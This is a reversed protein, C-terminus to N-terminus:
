NNCVFTEILSTDTIFNGFQRNLHRAFNDADLILMTKAVAACPKEDDSFRGIATLDSLVVPLITYFYDDYDSYAILSPYELEVDWKYKLKMEKRKNYFYSAFYAHFGIKYQVIKNPNSRLNTPLVGRSANFHHEGFKYCQSRYRSFTPILVLNDLYQPLVRKVDPPNAFEYILKKLNTRNGGSIERVMKRFVPEEYIRFIKYYIAEEFLHPNQNLHEIDSAYVNLCM